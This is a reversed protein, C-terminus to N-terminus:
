VTPDLSASGNGLLRGISSKLFSAAAAIGAAAATQANEISFDAVGAAVYLGLFAEVFTFLAREATDRLWVARDVKPETTM